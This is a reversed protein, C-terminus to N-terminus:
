AGEPQKDPAAAQEDPQKILQARMKPLGGPPGELTLPHVRSRSTASPTGIVFSRNMVKVGEGEIMIHLLPIFLPTSGQQITKLDALRMEVKGKIARSQQPGIREIEGLPKGAAIPPANSGGRQASALQASVNLGRVAVDSRNAIELRFDIMFMMVSKSATVIDLAFDLRPQEIAKQQSPAPAVPAPKRTEFVKPTDPSTDPPTDALPDAPTPQQVPPVPAAQSKAEEQWQQPEHEPEPEPEQQPLATDATVEPEFADNETASPTAPETAEDSERSDAIVKHVGFALSQGEIDAEAAELRKRRWFLGALILGLLGMLGLGIYTQNRLAIAGVTQISGQASIAPSPRLPLAQSSGSRAEGDPTVDYWDDPGIPPEDGRPM